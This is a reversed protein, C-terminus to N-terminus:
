NSCQKKYLCFKCKNKDETKNPIINKELCNNLILARSLMYKAFNNDIKFTYKKIEKLNRNICVITIGLLNYEYESNLIYAGIMAQAYFEKKFPNSKFEEPDITKLELLFKKNIGDVRGKVNYKKSIITKEIEEFNYLKQIYEHIFNGNENILDLYPYIWNNDVIIKKRFFYCKRLCDVLESISIYKREYNQLSINKERSKSIMKSEFLKTDFGDDIKESKSSISTTNKNGSTNNELLDSFDKTDLLNKM